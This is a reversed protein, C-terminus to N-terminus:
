FNWICGPLRCGIAKPQQPASTDKAGSSVAELGKWGMIGREGQVMAVCDGGKGVKPFLHGM